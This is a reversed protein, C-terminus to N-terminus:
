INEACKKKKLKLQLAIVKCCKLPKQWVDIHILWPNVHTGWESAGEWRGGWGIGRSWGLAGARLVRDRADFRSQHDTEYIFIHFHKM